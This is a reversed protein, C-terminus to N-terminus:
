QCADTTLSNWSLTTLGPSLAAEVRSIIPQMLPGLVPPIRSLGSSYDQLMELLRSCCCLSTLGLPAPINQRQGGELSFALFIEDNWTLM